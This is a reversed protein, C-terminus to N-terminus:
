QRERLCRACLNGDGQFDWGCDICKGLYKMIIWM